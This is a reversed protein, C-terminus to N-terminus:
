SKVDPLDVIGSGQDSNSLEMMEEDEDQKIDFRLKKDGNTYQPNENSSCDLLSIDIKRKKVSVPQHQEVLVSGPTRPTTLTTPNDSKGQPKSPNMRKIKSPPSSGSHSDPHNIIRIEEDLMQDLDEDM